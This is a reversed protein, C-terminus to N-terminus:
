AAVSRYVDLTRAAADDWRHEAARRRGAARLVGALSPDDLLQALAGAIARPDHPDVTLAAGGAVEATATSSSTVVAAGCAMAELVPLGFGEEFSPFCLAAAGAYLAPLDASPVPGLRAVPSAVGAAAIDLDPGWGTPGVVVLTVEPRDLAAMASLLGALNKRPEVTGVFLVYQGRVGHRELVEAITPPEVDVADVGWPVVTIAAEPYGHEICHERVVESPVMVARAHRLQWRLGDAMLHAGRATFDGPRTLPFLDHVTAVVPASRVGVRMPVTVHVLDIPGCAADVSPRGWRAWSDYLLPLPLPLTVAPVAGVPGPLGSLTRERAIMSRPRRLEGRALVATLDVQGSAALASALRVVSTATGGPVRHVVQTLTLAVRPVGTMASTERVAWGQLHPWGGM